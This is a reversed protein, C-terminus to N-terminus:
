KGAEKDYLKDMYDYYWEQAEDPRFLGHNTNLARAFATLMEITEKDTM